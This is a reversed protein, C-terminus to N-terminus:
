RERDILDILEQRSHVDAKVYIHRIHSKATNFSITLNQAIYDISRGRVLLDFVDRERPSLGYHEAVADCRMRYPGSRREGAAAGGPSGDALSAGAGGMEGVEGMESAGSRGTGGDWAGEGDAVASGRDEAGRRDVLATEGASGAGQAPIEAADGRLREEPRLADGILRDNLVLMSVVLLAFVMAVSVVELSLSGDGQSRVIELGALWGFTTGLASAGRGLGFVLIPSLRLSYAVYVLLCWIVLVFCNYAVTIFQSGFGTGGLLPTVLIGAAVAIIIPYYLRSVDFQRRLLGVVVFLVGAVVATSFIILAGDANLSSISSHPVSFGRSVGVVVSFVAVAVLLRVFFRRLPVPGEPRGGEGEDSWEPNTLTSVVALVPLLATFVMGVPDPLGVAMFYIMAAFVFSAATYMAAERAPAKSYVVGFRLVIVSTGAGTLAASVILYLNADAGLSSSAYTGVTAAGVVVAVAILLLNSGVLRRTLPRVLSLLVLAVGLALTSVLYTLSITDPPLDSAASPFVLVNSNYSVWIWAYYFGFGVLKLAPWQEEITMGLRTPALESNSAFAEQNDGFRKLM